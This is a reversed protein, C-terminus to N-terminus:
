LACEQNTRTASRGITPIKFVNTTIAQRGPFPSLTRAHRDDCSRSVINKLATKGKTMGEEGGVWRFLLEWLGLSVNSIRMSVVHPTPEDAGESADTQPHETPPIATTVFIDSLPHSDVRKCVTSGRPVIWRDSPKEQFEIVVDFDRAQRLPAAPRPAAVPGHSSTATLPPQSATPQSQKSAAGMSRILDALTKKQEASAKDSAALQLLDKLVPNTAAAASVQIVLDPTVSSDPLGKQVEPSSSLASVAVQAASASEKTQQPGQTRYAHFAPAHSSSPESGATTDPLYYVEYFTTEPFVHPGIRVDFRGHAKISHPPPVVEPPKGGRAKASFKPFASSLWRNRAKLPTLM